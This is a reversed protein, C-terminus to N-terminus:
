RRARYRSPFPLRDRLGEANLLFFHEPHPLDIRGERLATWFTGPPVKEDFDAPFYSRGFRTWDGFPRGLYEELYAMAEAGSAFVAAFYFGGEDLEYSAKNDYAVQVKSGSLTVTRIFDFVVSVDVICPSHLDSRRM